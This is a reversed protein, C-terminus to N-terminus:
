RGTPVTRRSRVATRPVRLAGLVILCAVAVLAMLAFGLAYGGTASKVIGM